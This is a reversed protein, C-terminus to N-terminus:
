SAERSQPATELGPQTSCTPGHPLCQVALSTPSSLCGHAGEPSPSTQTLLDNWPRTDATHLRQVYAPHALDLMGCWSKVTVSAILLRKHVQM